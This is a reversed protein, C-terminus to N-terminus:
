PQAHIDGISEVYIRIGDLKRPIRDQARLQEWPVKHTVSVILTPGGVPKGERMHLGIGVAVVNAKKLLTNEHQAKITHLRTIDFEEM